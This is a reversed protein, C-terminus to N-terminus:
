FVSDILEVYTFLRQDSFVYIYEKPPLYFNKINFSVTCSPGM